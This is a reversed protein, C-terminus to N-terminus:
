RTAPPAPRFKVPRARAKTVERAPLVGANRPQAAPALRGRFPGAACGAEPQHTPAAGKARPTLALPRAGPPRPGAAMRSGLTFHNINMFHRIM